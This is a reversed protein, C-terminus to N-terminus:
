MDAEFELFVWLRVEPFEGTCGEEVSRDRAQSEMM